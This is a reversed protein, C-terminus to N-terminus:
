PNLRGLAARLADRADADGFKLVMRAAEVVDDHRATDDAVTWGLRFAQALAASRETDMALGNRILRKAEDIAARRRMDESEFLPVDPSDSPGLVAGTSAWQTRGSGAARQNMAKWLAEIPDDSM